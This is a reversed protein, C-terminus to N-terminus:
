RAPSPSAPRRTGSRRQDPRRRAASGSGGGRPSEGPRPRRRRSGPNADEESVTRVEDAAPTAAAALRALGHTAESLRHTAEHVARRLIQIATIEQPGRRGTRIWDRGRFQGAVDALRRAGTAIDGVVDAPAAQRPPPAPPATLEPCESTRIRELDDAARDFALATAIAHGIASPGNGLPMGLSDRYRDFLAAWQQSMVRATRTGDSPLAHRPRFGCVPCREAPLGFDALDM